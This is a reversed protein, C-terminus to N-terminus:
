AKRVRNRRGSRLRQNKKAIETEPVALVKSTLEAFDDFEKSTEPLDVPSNIM